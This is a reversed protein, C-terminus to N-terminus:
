VSQWFHQRAMRLLMLAFDSRFAAHGFLRSAVIPTMVMASPMMIAKAIMLIKLPMALSRLACGQCNKQHPAIRITVTVTIAITSFGHDLLPHSEARPSHSGRISM